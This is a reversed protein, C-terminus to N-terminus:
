FFRFCVLFAEWVKTAPSGLSGSAAPTLGADHFRSRQRQDAEQKNMEVQSFSVDSRTPTPFAKIRRDKENAKM